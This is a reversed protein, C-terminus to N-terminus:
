KAVRRAKAILRGSRAHALKCLAIAEDLEGPYIRRTPEDESALAHVGSSPGENRTTATNM